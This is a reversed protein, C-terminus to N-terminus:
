LKLGENNLADFAKRKKDSEDSEFADFAALLTKTIRSIHFCPEYEGRVLCGSIKILAFGITQASMLFYM